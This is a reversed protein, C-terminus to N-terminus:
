ETARPEPAPAVLDHHRRLPSVRARWASIARDRSWCWRTRRACSMCKVQFDGAVYDMVLIAEGSCKCPPLEPQGGPPAGRYMRLNMDAARELAEDFPRALRYLAVKLRSGRRPDLSASFLRTWERQVAALSPLRDTARGCEAECSVQYDGDGAFYELRGASGCACPKLDIMASM